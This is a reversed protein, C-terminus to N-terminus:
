NAATEAGGVLGGATVGGGCRWGGGEGHSLVSRPHLPEQTQGQVQRLHEHETSQELERRHLQPHPHLRPASELLSEPQTRTHMPESVLM